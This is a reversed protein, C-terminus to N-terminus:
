LGAVSGSCDSFGAVNETAIGDKSSRGKFASKLAFVRLRWPAFGPFSDPECECFGRQTKAGKRSQTLAKNGNDFFGGAIGTFRATTLGTLTLGDFIITRSPQVAKFGDRFYPIPASAQSPSKALRSSPAYGFLSQSRPAVSGFPRQLGARLTAARQPQPPTARLDFIAASIRRGRAKGWGWIGRLAGTGYKRSPNQSESALAQYGIGWFPISAGCSDGCGEVRELLAKLGFNM